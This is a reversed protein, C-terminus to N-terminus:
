PRFFFIHLSLIYRRREWARACYLDSATRARSPSLQGNETGVITEEGEWDMPLWKVLEDHGVLLLTELGLLQSRGLLPYANKGSSYVSRADLENMNQLHGLELFLLLLGVLLSRIGGICRFICLGLFSRRRLFRCCCRFSWRCIDGSLLLVLFVRWCVSGARCLWLLWYGWGFLRLGCFFINENFGGDFRHGGGGGRRVRLGQWFGSSVICRTCAM